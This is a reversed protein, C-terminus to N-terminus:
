SGGDLFMKSLPRNVARARRRGDRMSRIAQDLDGRGVSRRGTAYGQSSADPVLLQQQQAPEAKVTAEAAMDVAAKVVVVSPTLKKAEADQVEQACKELSSSFSAILGFFDEPKPAEPTEPREGFYVLLAQLEGELASGMKKLAEVRPGVQEVFPQMVQVFQDDGPRGALAQVQTIETSVQALGSVLSHISQVVAQLSVRAAPELNPLDDIFRILSGDTRMLVRSLYHLLTPCDPGGSATKTEKM